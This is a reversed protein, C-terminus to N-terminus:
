TGASVNDWGQVTVSHKAWGRREWQKETSEVFCGHSDITLTSALTIDTFSAPVIVDITGGTKPDLYVVGDTEGTENQLEEKDISRSVRINTIRGSVTVVGSPIGWVFNAAAGKKITTDAM